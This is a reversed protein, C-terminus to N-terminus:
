PKGNKRTKAQRSGWRARAAKRAKTVRQAKTLKLGALRGIAVAHPNKDEM